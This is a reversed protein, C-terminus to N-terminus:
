CHELANCNSRLDAIAENSNANTCFNVANRWIPTTGHYGSCHWLARAACCWRVGCAFPTAGSCGSDARAPLSRLALASMVAAYAFARAFVALAERRSPREVTGDASLTASAARCRAARGAFAALHSLWLLSAGAALLLAADALPAAPRMALLCLAALWAALAALFAARICVPCRGLTGAGIVGVRRLMREM